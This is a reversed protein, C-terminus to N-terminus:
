ITVAVAEVALGFVYYSAVAVALKVMVAVAVALRFPGLDQLPFELAVLRNNQQVGQNALCDVVQLNGEQLVNSIEVIGQQQLLQKCGFVLNAGSM